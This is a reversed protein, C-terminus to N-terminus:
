LFVYAPVIPHFFAEHCLSYSLNLNNRQEPNCGYEQLANILPEKECPHYLCYWLPTNGLHDSLKSIGPYLEELTNLVAVDFEANTTERACICCLLDFPLLLRSIENTRHRILHCLISTSGSALIAQLVGITLKQGSLASTIEFIAVDDRPLVDQVNKCVSVAQKQGFLLGKPISEFEQTKGQYMIKRMSENDILYLTDDSLFDHMFFEVGLMENWFVSRLNDPLTNKMDVLIMKAVKEYFHNIDNVHLVKLLHVMVAFIDKDDKNLHQLLQRFLVFGDNGDDSACDYMLDEIPSSVYRSKSELSSVWVRHTRLFDVLGKADKKDLVQYEDNVAKLKKWQEETM